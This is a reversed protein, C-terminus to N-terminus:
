KEKFSLPIELKFKKVPVPHNYQEIWAAVDEKSISSDFRKIEKSDADFIIIMEPTANHKDLLEKSEAKALNKVVKKQLDYLKLTTADEHSDGFVLM